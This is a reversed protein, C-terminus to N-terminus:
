ADSGVEACEDQITARRPASPDRTVPMHALDKFAFPDDRDRRVIVMGATTPSIWGGGAGPM